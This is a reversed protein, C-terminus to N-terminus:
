VPFRFEGIHVKFLSVLYNKIDKNDLFILGPLLIMSVPPHFMDEMIFFFIKLGDETVYNSILTTIAVLSAMFGIILTLVITVNEKNRSATNRNTTSTTAMPIVSMSARKNEATVQVSVFILNLIFLLLIGSKLSSGFGFILNM